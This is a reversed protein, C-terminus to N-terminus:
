SRIDRVFKVSDTGYFDYKSANKNIKNIFKELKTTKEVHNSKVVQLKYQSPKPKRKYINVTVGKEALQLYYGVNQQFKTSNITM